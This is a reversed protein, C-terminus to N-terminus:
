PEDANDSNLGAIKSGIDGRSEIVIYRGDGSIDTAFSDRDSATLQFLSPEQAFATVGCLLILAAVTLSLRFVQKM